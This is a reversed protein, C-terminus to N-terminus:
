SGTCWIVEEQMDQNDRMRKVDDIQLLNDAMLQKYEQQRIEELRRKEQEYQASLRELEEGEIRDEGVREDREMQHESM